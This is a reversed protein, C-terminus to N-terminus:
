SNTRTVLSPPHTASTSHSKCKERPIKDTPKVKRALLSPNINANACLDFGKEFRSAQNM